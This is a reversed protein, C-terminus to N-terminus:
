KQSVQAPRGIMTAPHARVGPCDIVEQVPVPCERACSEEDHCDGHAAVTVVESHPKHADRRDCPWDTLEVLSTM